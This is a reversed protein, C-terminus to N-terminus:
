CPTRNFVPAWFRFLRPCILIVPGPTWASSSSICADQINKLQRKPLHVRGFSFPFLHLCGRFSTSGGNSNNDQTRAYTTTWRTNSLPWTLTSGARWVKKSANVDGNNTYGRHHGLRFYFAPMAFQFSSHKKWYARIHTHTNNGRIDNYLQNLWSSHVCGLHSIFLCRAFCNRLM